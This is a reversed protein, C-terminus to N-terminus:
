RGCGEVSTTGLDPGETDSSAFVIVSESALGVCENQGTKRSDLVDKWFKAPQPAM